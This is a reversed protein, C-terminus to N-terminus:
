KKNVNSVGYSVPIMSRRKNKLVRSEIVFFIRRLLKMPRLNKNKKKIYLFTLSINRENPKIKQNPTM